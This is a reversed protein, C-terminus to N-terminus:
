ITPLNLPSTLYTESFGLCITYALSHFSIMVLMVVVVMMMMVMLMMMMMIM